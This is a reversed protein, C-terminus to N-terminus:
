PMGDPAMRLTKRARTAEEEAAKRPESDGCLRGAAHGCSPVPASVDAYDLSARDAKTPYHRLVWAAARLKSDLALPPGLIIDLGGNLRMVIGLEPKVQVNAVKARFDGPRASLADCRPGSRRTTCRAAPSRAARHALHAAAAARGRQPDFVRLVRGSSAVLSRYKGKAVALAVAREPVIHVRLTHPFDRDVSAIRITPVQEIASAVDSASIQLLSRGAAARAVADRVAVRDSETGGRVAVSQLVFVSSSKVWLYGLGVLGAALACAAAAVVVAAARRRVLVAASLQVRGTEVRRSRRRGGSHTPDSWHSPASCSWKTSSISASVARARPAPRAVVLDAVDQSRATGTNEIFNAHVTSIRAGGIVHGKLGCAEILAGAGPGEDPNKFVSGFTRAKRPQSESRRRQM